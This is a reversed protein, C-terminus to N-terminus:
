DMSPTMSMSSYKIANDVHKLQLQTSFSYVYGYTNIIVM